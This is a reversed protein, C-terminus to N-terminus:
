LPTEIYLYRDYFDYAHCPAHITCPVTSVGDNICISIAYGFTIKLM